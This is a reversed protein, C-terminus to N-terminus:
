KKKNEKIKKNISSWGWLGIILGGIGWLIMHLGVYFEGEEIFKIFFWSGLFMFIAFRSGYTLVYNWKGMDVYEELKEKQRKNM